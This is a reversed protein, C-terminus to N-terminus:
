LIDGGGRSVASLPRKHNRCRFIDALQQMFTQSGFLFCVPRRSKRFTQGAVAACRPFGHGHGRPFGGQASKGVRIIRHRAAWRCSRTTRRKPTEQIRVFLTRSANCTKTHPQEFYLLWVRNRLYVFYQVVPNVSLPFQCVWRHDIRWHRARGFQLKQRSDGREHMSHDGPFGVLFFLKFCQDQRETQTTTQVSVVGFSIVLWGDASSQRSLIIQFM